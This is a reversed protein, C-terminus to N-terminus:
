GSSLYSHARLARRWEASQQEVKGVGDVFTLDAPCLKLDFYEGILLDRVRDLVVDAIRPSIWATPVNLSTCGGDQANFAFHEIYDRGDRPRSRQNGTAPGRGGV